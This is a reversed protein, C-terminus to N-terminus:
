TVLISIDESFLIERIHNCDLPVIDVLEGSQVRYKKINKYTRVFFTEGRKGFKVGLIPQRSTVLVEKEEKMEPTGFNIQITQM